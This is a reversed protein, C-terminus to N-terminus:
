NRRRIEKVPKRTIYNKMGAGDLSGLIAPGRKLGGHLYIGLIRSSSAAAKQALRRLREVMDTEEEENKLIM